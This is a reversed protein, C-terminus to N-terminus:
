PEARRDRLTRWVLLAGTKLPGTSWSEHWDNEDFDVHTLDMPYRLPDAAALRAAFRNQEAVCLHEIRGRDTGSYKVGREALLGHTAEHVLICAYFGALANDDFGPVGDLFELMFARMSFFYQGQTGCTSVANVIHKIYRLVRAYRRADHEKLLHLAAEMTPQFSDGRKRLDCLAVGDALHVEDARITRLMVWDCLRNISKLM